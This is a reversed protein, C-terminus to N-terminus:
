EEKLGLGLQEIKELIEQESKEGMNRVRSLESKTLATLQSVSNIGCRKLCNFSRTSLNLVEINEQSLDVTSLTLEKEQMIDFKENSLNEIVVLHEKLKKAAMAITDEPTMVGNTWIELNLLDLDLKDKHRTKEISFNVKKVPTFISDVPIVNAENEEFVHSKSDIYGRGKVAKLEM